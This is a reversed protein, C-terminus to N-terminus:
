RKEFERIEVCEKINFDCTNKKGTEVDDFEVNIFTGHFSVVRLFQGNLNRFNSRTEFKAKTAKM